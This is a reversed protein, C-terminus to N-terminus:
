CCGVKAEVYGAISHVSEMTNGLILSTDAKKYCYQTVLISIICLLDQDEEAHCRKM